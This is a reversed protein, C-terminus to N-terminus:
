IPWGMQRLLNKVQETIMPGYKKTANVLFDSVMNIAAKGNKQIIALCKYYLAAIVDQEENSAWGFAHVAPTVVTGTLILCCLSLKKIMM